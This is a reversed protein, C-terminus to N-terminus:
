KRNDYFYGQPAVMEQYYGKKARKGDEIMRISHSINDQSSQLKSLFQSEWEMCEAIKQKLADTWSDQLHLSRYRDIKDRYEQQLSQLEHIRVEVKDDSVDLGALTRTTDLLGNVYVTLTEMSLVCEGKTQEAKISRGM